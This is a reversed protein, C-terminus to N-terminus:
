GFALGCAFTMRYVIKLFESSNNFLNPNGFREERAVQYIRVGFCAGKKLVTVEKKVFASEEDEDLTVCAAGAFIFYFAYGLHGKRVVM